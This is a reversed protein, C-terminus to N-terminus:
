NQIEGLDFCAKRAIFTVQSICSLRWKYFEFSKVFLHFIDSNETFCTTKGLNYSQAISLSPPRPPIRVGSLSGGIGTKLVPANLWEAVRGSPSRRM